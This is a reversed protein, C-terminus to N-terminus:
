QLSCQKCVFRNECCVCRSRRGSCNYLHVDMLKGCENCNIKELENDSEYSDKDEDSDTGRCESASDDTELPSQLEDDVLLGIVKLDVASDKLKIIVGSPMKLNEPKNLSVGFMAKSLRKIVAQSSPSLIYLPNLAFKHSFM